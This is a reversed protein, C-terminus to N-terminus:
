TGAALGAVVFFGIVGLIILGANVGYVIWGNRVVRRAGSPDENSRSMAVGAMVASPIGITLCSFFVSVLSIVLLVIGQNNASSAEPNPQGPAGYPAGYGPYPQGPGPAGYGPGPPPGSPGGYPQTGYPQQGPYPQTGYPQQGPYPQTGYPQQDPYPQAGYPQQDPQGPSAAYPYSTEDEAQSPAPSYGTASPAGSPPPPPFQSTPESSWATTDDTDAADATDATDDRGGEPAGAGQAERAQRELYWDSYGAGTADEDRREDDNSM